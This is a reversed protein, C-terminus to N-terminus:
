TEQKWQPMLENAPRSPDVVKRAQAQGVVPLDKPDLLGIQVLVTAQDWYIHENFLKDGRFTIIGVLPVEVYRGTPPIGPLMWEIERDHTFCLIGENVVRDVGITRSIPITRMDAPNDPIFHDRYFRLLNAHGYGGTMTPVHNVYPQPVMTAMTATADRQQFECARHAEWLANLDYWPGLVTRLVGLSRSYAMGASPAHFSAREKAAFGHKVGPYVHVTAQRNSALGEVVASVAEPPTLPDDAGFHVAVPVQIERLKDVHKELAVPYYTVACSVLGAAAALMAIRGGLCFGVTGVQGQFAPHRKLAEVADRVDDIVLQADLRKSYEMAKTIEKDSYGLEIRRALRWFLDPVLVVYGEQALNDAQARLSSTVGFIEQCLVIGPGKGAPPFALYAGM